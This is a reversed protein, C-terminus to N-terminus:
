RARPNGAPARPPSDDRGEGSLARRLEAVARELEAVRRELAQLQDSM